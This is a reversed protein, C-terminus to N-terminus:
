VSLDIKGADDVAGHEVVRWDISRRQLYAGNVATKLDQHDSVSM